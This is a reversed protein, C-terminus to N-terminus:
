NDFLNLQEKKFPFYFKGISLDGECKNLIMYDNNEEFCMSNKPSYNFNVDFNIEDESCGEFVDDNELPLRVSEGVDGFDDLDLKSGKIKVDNSDISNIEEGIKELESCEIQRESNQEINKDNMGLNHPCLLEMSFNFVETKKEIKKEEVCFKEVM